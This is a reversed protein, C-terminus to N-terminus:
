QGEGKETYEIELVRFMEAYYWARLLKGHPTKTDIDKGRLMEGLEKCWLGREQPAIPKPETKPPMHEQVVGPKSQTVAGGEFPHAVTVYERNMYSAYGLEVARDTQFLDFLHARKKGIKHDNNENDTVILDGYDNIQTHAVVIVKRREIKAETPM